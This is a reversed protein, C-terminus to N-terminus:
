ASPGLSHRVESTAERFPFTPPSTITGQVRLRMRDSQRGRGGKENVWSNATNSKRLVNVSVTQQPTPVRLLARRAVNLVVRGVIQNNFTLLSPSRHVTLDTTIIGLRFHNRKRPGFPSRRRVAGILEVFCALSDQLHQVSRAPTASSRSKELM